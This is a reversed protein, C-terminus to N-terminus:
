TEKLKDIVVTRLCFLSDRESHMYLRGETDPVCLYM